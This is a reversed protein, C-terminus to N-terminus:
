KQPFCMIVRAGKGPVSDIAFTGGCMNRIREEVNRIGIHSREDREIEEPSFGKGDDEVTVCVQDGNRATGIRM